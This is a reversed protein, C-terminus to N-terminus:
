VRAYFPSNGIGFSFCAPMHNRIILIGPLAHTALIMFIFVMTKWIQSVVLVYTTVCLYLVSVLHPLRAILFLSFFRAAFYCKFGYWIKQVIKCCFLIVHWVLKKSKFTSIARSRQSPTCPINHKALHLFQSKMPTASWAVNFLTSLYIM